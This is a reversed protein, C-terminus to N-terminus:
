GAGAERAGYQQSGYALMRKRQESRPDDEMRPGAPSEDFIM